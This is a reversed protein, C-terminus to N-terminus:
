AGLEERLRQLQDDTHRYATALEDLDSRLQSLEQRIADLQQQIAPAKDSPGEPGGTPRAAGPPAAAPTARSVEHQQKIRELEEPPYLAHTVVHGRGEPTLPIVLGKAKLSQLLPELESLHRIPEMRSARARLEGVTQPGRLLLEAMVAIERKDVGLWQYLYHRYKTVRGYGEVVGVAGLKRLRELSEEVDDPELQMVPCRNSKQNCGTVLANLTMPYANPTTKAKEVLV